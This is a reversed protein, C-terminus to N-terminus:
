VFSNTRQSKITSEACLTDKINMKDNVYSILSHTSFVVPQYIHSELYYLSLFLLVVFVFYSIFCLLSSYCFNGNNHRGKHCKTLFRPLSIGGVRLEVDCSTLKDSTRRSYALAFSTNTFSGIDDSRSSLM